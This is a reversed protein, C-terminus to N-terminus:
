SSGRIAPPFAATSTAGRSRHAIQVSADLPESKPTLLPELVFDFCHAPLLLHSTSLHVPQQLLVTELGAKTITANVMRRYAVSGGSGASGVGKSGKLTTDFSQLSSSCYLPANSDPDLEILSMHKDTEFCPRSVKAAIYRNEEAM